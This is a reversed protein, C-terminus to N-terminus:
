VSDGNNWGVFFVFFNAKFVTHFEFNEAHDGCCNLLEAFLIIPSISPLLKKTEHSRIKSLDSTPLGTATIDLLSPQTTELDFSNLANPIAM